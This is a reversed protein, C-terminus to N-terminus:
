YLHKVSQFISQIQCINFNFIVFNNLKLSQTAGKIDLLTVYNM